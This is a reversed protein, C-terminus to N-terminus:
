GWGRQRRPRGGLALVAPLALLPVLGLICTGTGASHKPGQGLAYAMDKLFDDPGKYGVVRHTVTGNPALFITTPYGDVGYRAVLDGRMDGDVRICVFSQAKEMVRSDNYTDEDMKKCWSCWGTAFDILAIKNQAASLNMGEEYDHWQIPAAAAPSPVAVPVALFAALAIAVPLIKAM